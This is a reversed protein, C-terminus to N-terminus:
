DELSYYIDEQPAGCDPCGDEPLEEIDGMAGCDYCRWTLEAEGAAGSAIHEGSLATIGEDTSVYFGHEDFGRVAGLRNGDDDYIETGFTVDVGSETSRVM